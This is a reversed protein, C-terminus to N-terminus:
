FSEVYRITISASFPGRFGLVDLRGLTSPLGLLSDLLISGMPLCDRTRQSMTPNPQPTEPNVISISCRPNRISSKPSTRSARRHRNSSYQLQNSCHQRRRSSGGWPGLLHIIPHRPTPKCYPLLYKCNLVKSLATIIRCKSM